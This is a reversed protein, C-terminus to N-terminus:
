TASELLEQGPEALGGSKVKKYFFYIGNLPLKNLDFLYRILPLQELVEHLWKCLESM